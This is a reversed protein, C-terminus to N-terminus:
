FSDVGSITRLAASVRPITLTKSNERRQRSSPDLPQGLPLALGKFPSATPIM